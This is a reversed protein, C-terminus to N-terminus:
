CSPNPHRITLLVKDREPSAFLVVKPWGCRDSEDRAKQKAEEVSVAEFPVLEKVAVESTYTELAYM